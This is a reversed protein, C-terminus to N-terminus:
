GNDSEGVADRLLRAAGRRRQADVADLLSEADDTGYLHPLAARAAEPAFREFTEDALLFLERGITEDCDSARGVFDYFQLALELDSLAILEDAALDCSTAPM